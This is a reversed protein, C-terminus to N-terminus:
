CVCSDQPPPPYLGGPWHAYRSPRTTIRRKSPHLARACPCACCPRTGAYNSKSEAFNQIEVRPPNNIGQPAVRTRPSCKLRLNNDQTRASRKRAFPGAGEVSAACDSAFPTCVWASISAQSVTHYNKKLSLEPSAKCPQHGKYSKGRYGRRTDCQCSGGSICAQAVVASSLVRNQM